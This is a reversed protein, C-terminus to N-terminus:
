KSFLGNLCGNDTCLPLSIVSVITVNAHNFHLFLWDMVMPSIKSPFTDTTKHVNLM